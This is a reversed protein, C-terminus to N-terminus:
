GGGVVRLVEELSTLGAEVKAIGDRILPQFGLGLAVETLNTEDPNRLLGHQIERGIRLVEAIAIRGSYGSGQCHRCGVPTYGYIIDRNISYTHRIAHKEAESPKRCHACLRRVLRQAMVGKVTSTLLFPEVGMDVLRPLAAIATNTHITALVLHGTLAAQTAVAATERDRIEGVLIVDPDQRLVARLANAFDFGIKRNVQIQNVGNLQYEVPDEVTIINRSPTVISKLAAYLTTTKGSGTPGTVLFIGHPQQLILDIEERLKGSLGLEQFDLSVSSRDLIRLVIGEGQLHPMTAVRLDIDRGRWAMKIRGDQPLRREAIDLGAMIKLRSVVAAHLQQPSSEVDQLTGDIRYRIRSASHDATIHVDSAKLEIAKDLITNVIRIVPADSALDKLREVDISLANIDDFPPLSSVAGEQGYLRSFAAAFEGPSALRREVALGTKASVAAPSFSDLPDLVALTLGSPDQKIPILQAHKLFTQSLHETLIPEAPYDDATAIPLGTIRSWAETLVDDSILGLKTLISDIRDSSTDAARRGRELAQKTLVGCRILESLVAEVTPACESREAPLAMTDATMGM